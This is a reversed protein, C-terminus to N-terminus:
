AQLMRRLHTTEGSVYGRVILDFRDRPSRRDMPEDSNPDGPGFHDQPAFYRDRGVSEALSEHVLDVLANFAPTEQDPRTAPAGEKIFDFVAKQTRQPFDGQGVRAEERDLKVDAAEEVLPTLALGSAAGFLEAGGEADKALFAYACAPIAAAQLRAKYLGMGSVGGFRFENLVMSVQNRHIRDAEDAMNKMVEVFAMKAEQPDPRGFLRKLFPM